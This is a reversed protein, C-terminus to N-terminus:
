SSRNISHVYGLLPPGRDVGILKLLYHATEM